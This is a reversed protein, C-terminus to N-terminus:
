IEALFFFLCYFFQTQQKLSGYIANSGIGSIRHNPFVYQIQFQMNFSKLTLYNTSMDNALLMM